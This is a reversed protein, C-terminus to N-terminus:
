FVGLSENLWRPNERKMRDYKYAAKSLLHGKSDKKQKKTPPTVPHSKVMKVSLKQEKDFVSTSLPTSLDRKAM